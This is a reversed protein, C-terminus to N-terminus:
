KGTPRARPNLRSVRKLEEFLRREEESPEKPVVIKL